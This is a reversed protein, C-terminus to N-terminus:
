RRRGFHNTWVTANDQKLFTGRKMSIGQEKWRGLINARHIPSKLWARMVRKPNASEGSVWALNESVTWAGRLYGVARFTNLFNKSCATHSFKQCRLMANTKIRSSKQLKRNARLSPLGKQRRAFNIMCQMTKSGSASDLTSSSAGRCQTENAVLTSNNAQANPTGLLTLVLLVLIFRLM